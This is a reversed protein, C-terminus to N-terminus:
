AWWDPGRCALLEKKHREWRVWFAVDMMLTLCMTWNWNLAAALGSATLSTLV